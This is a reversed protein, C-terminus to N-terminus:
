DGLDTDNNREIFVEYTDDMKARMNNAIKKANYTSYADVERVFRGNARRVVVKWAPKM